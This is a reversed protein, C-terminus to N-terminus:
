IILCDSAKLRGPAQIDALSPFAFTALLASGGAASGNSDYLLEGTTADFIIRDLPTLVEGGLAFQSPLLPGVGLGLGPMVASELGIKDVGVAFDVIWAHRL